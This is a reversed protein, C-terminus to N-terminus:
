TRPSASQHSLSNTFASSSCNASSASMMQSFSLTQPFFARTNGALSQASSTSAISKAVRMSALGPENSCSALGSALASQQFARGGQGEEVPKLHEIERENGRPSSVIIRRLDSMSLSHPIEKTPLTESTVPPISVNESPNQNRASNRESSAPKDASMERVNQPIKSEVASWEIGRARALELVQAIIQAALNEFEGHYLNRQISAVVRHCVPCAFSEIAGSGVFNAVKENLLEHGCPKCVVTTSDNILKLMVAMAEQQFDISM